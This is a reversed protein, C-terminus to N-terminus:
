DYDKKVRPVLDKGTVKGKTAEHILMMTKFQPINEGRLCRYVTMLNVNSIKSFEKPTMKCKLLYDKLRM